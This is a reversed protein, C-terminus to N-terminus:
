KAVWSFQLPGAFQLPPASPMKKVPFGRCSGSHPSCKGPAGDQVTGGCAVLQLPQYDDVRYWSGNYVFAYGQGSVPDGDTYYGATIPEACSTDVVGLRPNIVNGTSMQVGFTIGFQPSYVLAGDRLVDVPGGASLTSHGRQLLVGVPKGSADVVWLGGGGVNVPAAKTDATATDFTTGTTTSADPEPNGSVAADAVTVPEQQKSAAAKDSCAAAVACLCIASFRQIIM